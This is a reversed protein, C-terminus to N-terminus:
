QQSTKKKLKEKVESIAEKIKQLEYDMRRQECNVISWELLNISAKIAEKEEARSLLNLIPLDFQYLISCLKEKKIKSLRDIINKPPHLIIKSLTWATHNAIRINEQEILNFLYEGVDDYSFNRLKAISAWFHNVVPALPDSVTASDPDHKYKEIIEILEKLKKEREKEDKFLWVPYVSKETIQYDRLDKNNQSIALFRNKDAHVIKYTFGVGKTKEECKIHPNLADFDSPYYGNDEHFERMAESVYWLYFFPGEERPSYCKIESCTFGLVFLLINAILILLLRRKM